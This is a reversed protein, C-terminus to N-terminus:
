NGVVHNRLLKRPVQYVGRWQPAPRQIPQPSWAEESILVGCKREAHALTRKGLDHAQRLRFAPAVRRRRGPQRLARGELPSDAQAMQAQTGRTREDDIDVGLGPRHQLVALRKRWTQLRFHTASRREGGLYRRIGHGLGKAECAAAGNIARVPKLAKEAIDVNRGLV